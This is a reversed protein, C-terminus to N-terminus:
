IRKSNNAILIKPKVILKATAKAAAAPLALSKALSLAKVRALLGKRKWSIWFALPVRM